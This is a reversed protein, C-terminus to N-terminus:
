SLSTRWSNNISHKITETGPYNYKEMYKEEEGFHTAVYEELFRIVKQVEEKGRGQNCADLLDNIRKFLERHQSDIEDVKTALDPTWLIAMTNRRVDSISESM